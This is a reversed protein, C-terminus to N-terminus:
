TVPFPASWWTPALSVYMVLCVSPKTVEKLFRYAMKVSKLCCRAVFGALLVRPLCFVNCVDCNLLVWWEWNPWVSVDDMMCHFAPPGCLYFTSLLRHLYGMPVFITAYVFHVIFLACYLCSESCVVCQAFLLGCWTFVIWTLCSVCHPGCLPSLSVHPFYVISLIFSSKKGLFGKITYELCCVHMFSLDFHFCSLDFVICACRLCYPSSLFTFFERQFSVVIFVARLWLLMRQFCCLACLVCEWRCVTLFYLLSLESFLVTFVPCLSPFM